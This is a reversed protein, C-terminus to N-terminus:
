WAVNHFHHPAGTSSTVTPTEAIWLIKIEPVVGLINLPGVVDLPEFGEYLLFGLVKAPNDGDATSM